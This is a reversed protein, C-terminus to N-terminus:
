IAYDDRPAKPATPRPQEKFLELDYGLDELIHTLARLMLNATALCWGAKKDSEHQISSDIMKKLTVAACNLCDKTEPKNDKLCDGTAYICRV